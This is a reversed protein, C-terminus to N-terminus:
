REEETAGHWLQQMDPSRVLLDDLTGRDAIHGDKLVIIQDARRLAARRHSVVLCTVPQAGDNAIPRLREWLIRETNVDLASSLDDFVLLEADRVFMRAAASRQVQGGSLRVGRPGVVTNIGQDLVAIDDELVSRHIAGQLDVQKEPLGMLINERLSDSFLRPVQSTYATRPPHFFTAADEVREGNWRIEGADHPLLGLLVRLLTTKGSGIRGTVVTFSGRPLHLDVDQIGVQGDPFRYGLGSAEVQELRHAATKIVYPLEPPAEREYVPGHELLTRPSEPVILDSIRRIAVEQQKYDGIFTGFVTPLETTFWMYYIFLAFDGVTFTGAAMARGALLITVGTGFTVATGTLSDLVERFMLIRLEARRRTESLDNFHALVDPEANAVKVAQVAGFVEGLFGTVAGTAIRSAGYGALLRGWALRTAAVGVFLPIFVVLTIKLDISAMIGIALGSAIVRSLVFPLWLPFDSVEGVDHDLRNIAEGSAVPSPMAGPRRLISRLINRRLLMSAILRFKVDGWATGFSTALRALEASVYLAILAWVGLGVPAAGTIRDFVAKELLGPVIMLGYFLISFLTYIAFSWPRYTILAWNLPWSTLREARTSRPLQHTLRM